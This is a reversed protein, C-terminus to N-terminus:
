MGSMNREFHRIMDAISKDNVVNMHCPIMRYEVESPHVQVDHNHDDTMVPRDVRIIFADLKALEEYEHYFRLDSIIYYKHDELKNVLSYALFKRDIGPLLEQMKYQIVETGFFQLAKRPTIGWRTDIQDKADNDGVQDKSFNFFASVADKLPDAIRIKTYQYRDAIYNALTDKGSRKAGTIAIIRPRSGMFSSFAISYTRALQM